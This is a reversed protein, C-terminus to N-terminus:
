FIKTPEVNRIIFITRPLALFSSNYKRINLINKRKHIFRSSIAPIIM